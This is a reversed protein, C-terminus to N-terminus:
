SMIATAIAYENRQQIAFKLALKTYFIASDSGVSANKIAAVRGYFRIITNTDSIKYTRLINSPVKIFENALKYNLSKRYQELLDVASKFYL